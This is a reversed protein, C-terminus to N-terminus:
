AAKAAKKLANSLDEIKKLLEIEKAKSAQLKQEILKQKEAAELQIAKLNKEHNELKFNVKKLEQKLATERLEYEKIKDSANETGEAEKTASNKTSASITDKRMKLLIAKLEQIEKDKASAEKFLTTYKLEITAMRKQEQSLKEVAQNKEIEAARLSTELKSVAEQQALAAAPDLKGSASAAAAMQQSVKKELEAITKKYSEQAMENAKSLKLIENRKQMLEKNLLTLKTLHEKVTSDKKSLNEKLTESINELDEIKKIVAPPLQDLNLEKSAEEISSTSSSTAFYQNNTKIESLLLFQYNQPASLQNEKKASQNLTKILVSGASLNARKQERTILAHVEIESYQEHVTICVLDSAYGLLSWQINKGNHFYSFLEDKNLTSANFRMNVAIKTATASVQFDVTPYTSESQTATRFAEFILSTLIQRLDPIREKLKFGNLSNLYASLRDMMAGTNEASQVKEAVIASGKEMLSAVGSNKKPILFLHLARLLDTSPIDSLSLRPYINFIPDWKEKESFSNWEQPKTQVLIVKNWRKNGFIEPTILGQHIFIQQFEAEKQDLFPEPTFDTVELAEVQAISGLIKALKAWSEADSDSLAGHCLLIKPKDTAQDM